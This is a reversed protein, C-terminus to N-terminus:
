PEGGYPGHPDRPHHAGSFGKPSLAHPRPSSSGVLTRTMDANAPAFFILSEGGHPGHPPRSHHGACQGHVHLPGQVLGCACGPLPGRLLQEPRSGAAGAACQCSRGPLRCCCHMLMRNYAIESLLQDPVLAHLTLYYDVFSSNQAPDLLELLASAPDGQYGAAACRRFMCRYRVSSSANGSLQSHM